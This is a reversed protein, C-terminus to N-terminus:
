KTGNKLNREILKSIVAWVPSLLGTVVVIKFIWNTFVLQLIPKDTGLFAITNFIISALLGSIINSINYRLVFGYKLKRKFFDFIPIDIFYQSFIISLEGAILFRFSDTIIVDFNPTMSFTPLLLSLGVVIWVILRVIAATIIMTKASQIGFHQNTLDVLGYALPMIIAALLIPYGFISVIKNALIPSLIFFVCYTVLLIAQINLSEKLIKIENQIIQKIKKLM